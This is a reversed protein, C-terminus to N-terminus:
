LESLINENETQEKQKKREQNIELHIATHETDTVWQLNSVKNNKRNTDKHHVIPKSKPNDIFAEAVLRHVLSKHDKGNKRLDVYYYGDGCIFPRLLKYGDLCLSLVRGESSIFYKSDLGSIEKWEENELSETWVFSLLLSIERTQLSNIIIKHRRNYNTQEM